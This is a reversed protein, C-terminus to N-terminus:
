VDIEGLFYALEQYGGLATGDRLIVHPVTKVNQFLVKFTDRDIDQGIKVYTYKHGNAELLALAKDCWPCDDRGYVTFEAIDPSSPLETWLLPKIFPDMGISGFICFEGDLQNFYCTHWENTDHRVPTDSKSLWVPKGWALFKRDKPATSGINITQKKM